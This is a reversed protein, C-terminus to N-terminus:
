LIFTHSRSFEKMQSDKECITAHYLIPVIKIITITNLISYYIYLINHM